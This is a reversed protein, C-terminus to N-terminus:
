KSNLRSTVNAKREETLKRPPNIKIWVVPIHACISGDKNCAIIKCEEPFRKALEKVRSIYRGQSLSLTATEGGKVFEIENECYGTVDPRKIDKM